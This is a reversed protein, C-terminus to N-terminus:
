IVVNQKQYISYYHSKKNAILDKHSGQEVIEGRDMVIIRDMNKITFLRHAIAIVTKNNEFINYLSEQIYTETDIDLASTAEDLVFISADKLIARAIAVRQRQGGSLKSGREGVITNYRDPLDMIFDHIMAKKSAEIVEDKSADPRGYRINEFITRHFLITDQPIISINKRLSDLSIKTIDQNDIFISNKKPEFYRLLLRMLTSKGAGSEGVLGIKEGALIKLNLNNLIKVDKEYSFDLNEINIEGKKIILKPKNEENKNYNNNLVSIANKFEGVDKLFEPLEVTFDWLNEFMSLSISMVYAISGLSIINNKRLYVTYFLIFALMGIYTLGGVIQLYFEYKYIKIQKPIFDEDIKKKLLKSERNRSTFSIISIINYIRDAIQGFISHRSEQELYSLYSLRKSFYIALIGYFFSFFLIIFALKVNIYFLSFMSIIVNIARANLGHHMEAWIQDYGDLISKLKSSITGSLNNQFFSYTHNQVSNYTQSVISKRVLPEAIWEAINSVRWSINLSLESFLFISIPFLIQSNTFKDLSLVDIFKKLASNYLFPYFGDLLTAQIMLLYYWKYPKIHHWLFYIISKNKM